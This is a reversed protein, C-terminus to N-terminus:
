PQAGEQPEEVPVIEVLHVSAHGRWNEETGSAVDVMQQRDDGFTLWYGNVQLGPVRWVAWRRQRQPKAPDSAM